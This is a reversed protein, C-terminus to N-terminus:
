RFIKLKLKLCRRLLYKHVAEIDVLIHINLKVPFNDLDPVGISAISTFGRLHYPWPSQSLFLSNFVM